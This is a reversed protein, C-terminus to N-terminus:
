SDLIDPLSKLTQQTHQGEVDIPLPEGLEFTDPVLGLRKARAITRSTASLHVMAEEMSLDPMQVGVITEAQGLLRREMAMVRDAAGATREIVRSVSEIIKLADTVNKPDTDELHKAASKAWKQLGPLMRAIAALTQSVDGRALRVMNAEETRGKIADASMAERANRMQEATMGGHIKAHKAAEEDAARAAEEALSRRAAAKEAELIASIPPLDHKRM